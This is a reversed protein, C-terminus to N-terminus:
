PDFCTRRPPPVGSCGSAFCPSRFRIPQPRVSSRLDSAPHSFHKKIFRGTFFRLLFTVSVKCYHSLISFQIQEPNTCALSGSAPCFFIHFLLFHPVVHKLNVIIILLQRAAIQEACNTLFYICILCCIRVLIDDTKSDTIYCLWKCRCDNICHMLRDILHSM